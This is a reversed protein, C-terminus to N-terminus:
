SSRERPPSLEDELHTARAAVRGALIQPVCLAILLLLPVDWGGTRAYVIGMVLPGPAALLYGVSQASGSLAATGGKTRTRLGIMTLILPFQGGGIGLLVMSLWPAATPALLMGLYGFVMLAMTISILWRQDARRAALRPIFFSVPISLATLLGLLAGAEAASAGNDRHLQAFWGFATYAQTSQLGFVLAMAWGTRTRAVDRMRIPPASGAALPRDRLLFLWPLAAVAAFAAWVILGRRWDLPD